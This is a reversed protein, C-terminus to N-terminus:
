GLKKQKNEPRVSGKEVNESKVSGKKIHLKSVVGALDHDAQDSLRRM